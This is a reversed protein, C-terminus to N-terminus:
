VSKDKKINNYPLMEMALTGSESQVLLGNTESLPPRGEPQSQKLVLQDILTVGSVHLSCVQVAWAGWSYVACRYAVRLSRDARLAMWWGSWAGSPDSTLGLVCKCASVDWVERVDMVPETVPERRSSFRRRRCGSSFSSFSLSLIRLCLSCKSSVSSLFLSSPYKSCGTPIPAVACLVVTGVALTRFTAGAGGAGM